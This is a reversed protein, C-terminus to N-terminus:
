SLWLWEWELMDGVCAVEFSEADSEERAVVRRRLSRLSLALRLRFFVCGLGPGWAPGVCGGVLSVLIEWGCLVDVLLAVSSQWRVVWQM